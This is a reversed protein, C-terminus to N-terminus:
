LGQNPLKYKDTFARSTMRRGFVELLDLLEGRRSGAVRERVIAPWRDLVVRSDARGALVHLTYPLLERYYKEKVNVSADYLELWLLLELEDPQKIRLHLHYILADNNRDKGFLLLYELYLVGALTNKPDAQFAAGYAEMALDDRNNKECMRALSTLLPGHRANMVMELVYSEAQEPQQRLFYLRALQFLVQPSRDGQDLAQRYLAIAQETDGRTELLRGLVLAMEAKRSRGRAQAYLSRLVELARDDRGLEHSLTLYRNLDAPSLESQQLLHREYTELAGAKDGSLEVAKLLLLQLSQDAPALAAAREYVTVAMDFRKTRYYVNGLAILAWLEDPSGILVNRLAPEAQEYRGMEVLLLLYQRNLYDNHPDLRRLEVVTKEAEPFNGAKIYCDALTLLDKNDFQKMARLKELAAAATTYDQNSRALDVLQRWARPDAGDRKAAEAMLEQAEQNRDSRTNWYHGSLAMLLAPLRPGVELARELMKGEAVRRGAARHLDAYWYCTLFDRRNLRLAREYWYAARDDRGLRAWQIGALRCINSAYPSYAIARQFFQDAKEYDDAQWAQMGLRFEKASAPTMPKDSLEWVMLCALDCPRNFGAGLYGSRTPWDGNAINVLKVTLKEGQADRAYAFWVGAGLGEKKLRRLYDNLSVVEPMVTLRYFGSDRVADAACELMAARLGAPLSGDAGWGLAPAPAPAPVPAPTQAAAASFLLGVLLWALWFRRVM